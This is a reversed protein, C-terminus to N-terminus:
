KKKLIFMALFGAGLGILTWAPIQGTLFGIGIGMLLGAPILVGSDDKKKM